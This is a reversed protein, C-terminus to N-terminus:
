RRHVLGRYGPGRGGGRRSLRASRRVRRRQLLDHRPDACRRRRADGIHVLLPRLRAASRLDWLLERDAAPHRFDSLALDLAALSRGIAAAQATSPRSGHLPEGQLCTQLRVIHSTGRLTTKAGALGDLPLCVRPTPLSSNRAAVHQLARIQLDNTGADEEANVIKLIYERGDSATLHFNADREGALPSATTELGFESAAIAVADTAEADPKGSTLLRDPSATVVFL